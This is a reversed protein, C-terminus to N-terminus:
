LGILPETNKFGGASSGERGRRACSRAAPGEAGSGRCREPGLACCGQECVAALRAANLRIRWGFDKGEQPKPKRPVLRQASLACPRTAPPRRFRGRPAAPRAPGAGVEPGPSGPGRRRLIKRTLSGRGRPQRPASAGAPAPPRAGRTQPGEDGSRGAPRPGSVSGPSATAGAAPGPSRAPLAPDVVARGAFGAPASGGRPRASGPKLRRRQPRKKRCLILPLGVSIPLMSCRGLGSQRREM